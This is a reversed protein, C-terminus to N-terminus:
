KDYIFTEDYFILNKANQLCLLILILTCAIINCIIDSKLIKAFQSFATGNLIFNDM